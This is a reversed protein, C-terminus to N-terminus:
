ENYKPRWLEQTEDRLKLYFTEVLEYDEPFNIGVKDLISLDIARTGLNPKLIWAKKLNEPNEKKLINLAFINSGRYGGLVWPSGIYSHPCFYSFNCIHYYFIFCRCCWYL